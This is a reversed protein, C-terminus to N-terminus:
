PILLDFGTVADKKRAGSSDVLEQVIVEMVHWVKVGQRICGTVSAGGRCYGVLLPLSYMDIDIMVVPVRVNIVLWM